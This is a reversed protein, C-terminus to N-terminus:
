RSLVADGTKNDTVSAYVFLPASSTWNVYFDNQTRNADPVSSILSFVPQQQMAFGPITITNTGLIAGNSTSRAVFTATVSSASPNFYGANTRFDTNNQLFSLTGSTSGNEQADFAFGATGKSEARLDNIVRATTLVNQDSTIRVGGLGGTLQLTAQMVDNLVKQEGPAVTVVKTTGAAANGNANQPFFDLTVNATSGGNNIVRMDTVFNTGAQGAVKGIVPLWTTRSGSGQARVLQGRLAGNPFESNHVNVYFGSPNANIQNALTQTITATGNALTNENFPVVVDGNVGAAAAHIHGATVPAVGQVLVSYHLTTGDITIVAIGAGDPDGGGVENAGSMVASYSQAFAAVPLLALLLFLISIRKM